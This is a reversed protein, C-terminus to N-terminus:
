LILCNSGVITYMKLIEYYVINAIEPLYNRIISYVNESNVDFM